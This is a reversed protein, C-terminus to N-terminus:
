TREYIRRALRRASMLKVRPTPYFHWDSVFGEKSSITSPTLKSRFIEEDTFTFRYFIRKNERSISQKRLRMCLNGIKDRINYIGPSSPPLPPLRRKTRILRRPSFLSHCLNEKM